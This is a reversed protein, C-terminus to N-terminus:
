SLTPGLRITTVFIDGKYRWSVRSETFTEPAAGCYTMPISFCAADLALWRVFLCLRQEIFGGVLFSVKVINSTLPLGSSGVAITTWSLSVPSFATIVLSCDNRRM